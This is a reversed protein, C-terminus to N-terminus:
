VGTARIEVQGGSLFGHHAPAAAFYGLTWEVWRLTSRLSDSLKDGLWGNPCDLWRLVPRASHAFRNFGGCSAPTKPISTYAPERIGEALGQANRRAPQRLNPLMM